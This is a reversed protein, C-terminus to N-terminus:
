VVLGTQMLRIAMAQGSVGFLSSLSEDCVYHPTINTTAAEFAYERVNMGDPTELSACRFREEFERTLHERPMLLSAAFYNAQWERWDEDSTLRRPGNDNEIWM